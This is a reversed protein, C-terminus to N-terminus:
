LNWCVGFVIEADSELKAELKFFSMRNKVKDIIKISEPLDPSIQTLLKYKLLEKAIMNLKLLQPISGLYEYLNRKNWYHIAMNIIIV